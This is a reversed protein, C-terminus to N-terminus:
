PVPHDQVPPRFREMDRRAALGGRRPARAQHDPAVAPPHVAPPVDRPAPLKRLAPGGTSPANLHLLRGRHQLRVGGRWPRAAMRLGPDHLELKVTRLRKDRVLDLDAGCLQPRRDMGAPADPAASEPAAPTPAPCRRRSPCLAFAYASDSPGDRHTLERDAAARRARSNTSTCVRMMLRCTRRACDLVSFSSVAM